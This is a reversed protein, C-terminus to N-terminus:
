FRSELFSKKQKQNKFAIELKKYIKYVITENVHM